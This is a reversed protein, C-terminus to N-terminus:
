HGLIVPATLSFRRPTLRMFLTHHTSLHSVLERIAISRGRISANTDFRRGRPKQPASQLPVWTYLYTTGRCQFASRCNLECIPTDVTSHIQIEGGGCLRDLSSEVGAVTNERNGYPTFHKRETSAEHLIWSLYLKVM